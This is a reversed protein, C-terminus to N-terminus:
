SQFCVHLGLQKSLAAAQGGIATLRNNAKTVAGAKGAAAAARITGMKRLYSTMSKMWKSALSAKGAPADFTVLEAQARLAMTFAPVAISLKHAIGPLKTPNGLPATLTGLAACNADAAKAFNKSMAQQQARSAPAALAVAAATAAAIALIATALLPKRLM